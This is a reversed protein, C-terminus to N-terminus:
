FQVCNKLFKNVVKQRNIKTLHPFKSFFVAVRSSSSCLHMCTGTHNGIEHVSWFLKFFTFVIKVTIKIGCSARVFEWERAGIRNDTDSTTTHPRCMFRYTQKPTHSKQSWKHKFSCEHWGSIHIGSTFLSLLISKLRRLECKKTRNQKNKQLKNWNSKDPYLCWVCDNKM